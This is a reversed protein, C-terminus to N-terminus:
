PSWTPSRRERLGAQHGAKVKSRALANATPLQTSQRVRFMACGQWGPHLDIYRTQVDHRYCQGAYGHQRRYRGDAVTDDDTSAGDHQRSREQHGADRAQQRRGQVRTAKNERNVVVPNAATGDATKDAGTSDTYTAWVHLTIVTTQHEKVMMVPTLTRLRPRTPTRSAGQRIATIRRSSTPTDVAGTWRRDPNGNYWQWKVSEMVVGDDDTLTAMFSIDVKPQVSSFTITGDEDANTVTIMVDRMATM